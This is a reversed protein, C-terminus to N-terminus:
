TREFLNYKPMPTCHGRLSENKLFRREVMTLQVKNMRQLFWRPFNLSRRQQSLPSKHFSLRYVFSFQTLLRFYFHGTRINLFNILNIGSYFSVSCLLFSALTRMELKKWQLINSASERTKHASLNCDMSAGSLNKATSWKRKTLLHKFCLFARKIM